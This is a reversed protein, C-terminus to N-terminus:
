FSLEKLGINSLTNEIRADRRKFVLRIASHNYFVDLAAVPNVNTPLRSVWTVATIDPLVLPREGASPVGM